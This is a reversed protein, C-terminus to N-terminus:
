NQYRMTYSSSLITLLNNYLFKPLRACRYVARQRVHFQSAFAAATSSVRVTTRARPADWKQSPEIVRRQSGGQAEAAYWGLPEPWM